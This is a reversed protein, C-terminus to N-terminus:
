TQIGPRLSRSLTCQVWEGGKLELVSKFCRISLLQSCGMCGDFMLIGSVKRYELYGMPAFSAVSLLAASKPM